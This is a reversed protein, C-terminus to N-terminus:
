PTNTTLEKWRDEHLRTVSGKDVYFYNSVADLRCELTGQRCLRRITAPAVDLIKAAQGVTCFTKGEILKEM